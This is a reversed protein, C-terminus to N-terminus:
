DRIPRKQTGNDTGKPVSVHFIKIQQLNYANELIYM